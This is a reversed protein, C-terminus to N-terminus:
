IKGELFKKGFVSLEALSVRTFEIEEYDALSDGDNESFVYIKNETESVGVFAFTEDYDALYELTERFHALSEEALFNLVTFAEDDYEDDFLDGVLQPARNLIDNDRAIVNGNKDRRLRLNFFSADGSNVYQAAWFTSM